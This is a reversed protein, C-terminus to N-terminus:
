VQLPRDLEDALEEDSLAAYREIERAIGKNIRTLSRKTDCPAAQGCERCKGTVDEIMHNITHAALRWRWLNRDSRLNRLKRANADDDENADASHRTKRSRAGSMSGYHDGSDRDCTDGGIDRISDYDM